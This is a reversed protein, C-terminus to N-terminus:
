PVGIAKLTVTNVDGVTFGIVFIATHEPACILMPFKTLLGVPEVKVHVLEFISIPIGSLPVPFIGVQVAGNFLVNDFIVPVIITVGEDEYEHIPVGILKVTVIYGIGVILKIESIKAHGPVGIVIPLKTLLRELALKEHILEFVAIPIEALPVPLIAVHVAGVFTAVVFIVPVNDTVGARLPQLPDGM